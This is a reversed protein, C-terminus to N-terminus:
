LATTHYLAVSLLLAPSARLSTLEGVVSVCAFSVAHGTLEGDITSLSVEHDRREALAVVKSRPREM